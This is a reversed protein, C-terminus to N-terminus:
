DATYCNVARENPHLFQFHKMSHKVNTPYDNSHTVPIDWIKIAENEQNFFKMIKKM